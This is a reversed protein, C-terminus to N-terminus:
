QIPTTCNTGGTPDKRINNNDDDCYGSDGSHGVSQPVATVEFSKYQDQNNITVKTCNTIAFTYGSKQGTALTADLLQAAQATPAGAKPDGGLEALTCTYGRAPYENAYALEANSITRVSQQASAENANKILKRMQPIALTSLILIISMVILLEILSFGADDSKCDEEQHKRYLDKMM